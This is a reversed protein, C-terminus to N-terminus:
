DEDVLENKIMRNISMKVPPKTLDEVIRYRYKKKAAKYKSIKIEDEEANVECLGNEPLHTIRIIKKPLQITRNRIQAKMRIM